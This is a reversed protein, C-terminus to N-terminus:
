HAAKVWAAMAQWDPDDQSAFQRGGSHFEAGGAFHALPQILLVSSLPEGPKVLHSVMEFNKRSQAETWTNAGKNLPELRFAHNASAHCVVCRAHTPRKKLFIPEVTTKYTQYDLSQAGVLGALVILGLPMPLMNNVTKISDRKNYLSWISLGGNMM